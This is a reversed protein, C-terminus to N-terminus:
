FMAKCGLLGTEVVFEFCLGLLGTEKLLNLAQAARSPVVYKSHAIVFWSLISSRMDKTVFQEKLNEKTKATLKINSETLFIDNVYVALVM